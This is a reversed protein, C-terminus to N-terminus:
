HAGEFRGHKLERNRQEHYAWAHDPWPLLDGAPETLPPLDPLDPLDRLGLLELLAPTTILLQHANRAVLGRDLLTDLASDSASGRM